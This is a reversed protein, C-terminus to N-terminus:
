LDDVDRTEKSRVMPAITALCYLAFFIAGTIWYLLASAAPTVPYFRRAKIDSPLRPRSCGAPM